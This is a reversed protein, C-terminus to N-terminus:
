LKVYRNVREEIVKTSNEWFDKSRIDIGFKLALDAATGEGTSALLNKYLPIFKAGQEKYIAYLGIGFLLGFAYPFNYFSLGPRYYHPKWIWMYKHRFNEDLSDGFTASQANEMIQCFEEATLENVERREFVEKEFLYRSYIDVIVQSDGILSTELIALEEEPNSTEKIIAEFVITECMISATEALTMPTSQQLMTKDKKCFNHFGHGLEHALTFISDLSGDFNCLVRSEKVKPLSMCFAGGRKGDRIEADIWHNNFARQAFEALEGSFTAFNEVIIERAQTFSYTIETKGMPAFLDWWALKDKGLRAAKAYFYRHFIPFSAKMVGLMSELTPRDIRAQDIASHLADDRGRRHNLTTVYGKVGNLAAAIPEEISKWAAQETVYANRRIEEKPNSRMGIIAPMPLRKEVGDMSFNVNLQSTITGQLKSWAGAGSLGLEAALEEEVESMLYQSQEAIEQLQFTHNKVTGEHELIKPLIEKISGIWGRVKTYINQSRVYNKEWTSFAKKAVQNYSDTTLFSDIYSRLTSNLVFLDNLDVILYDLYLAAEDPDVTQNDQHIQHDELYKELQEIKNILLNTDSKFEASNLSPYVGSLDWHPPHEVNESSMNAGLGRKFKSNNIINSFYRCTDIYNILKIM